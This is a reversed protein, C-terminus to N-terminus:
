HQRKSSTCLLICGAAQLLLICDAPHYPQLRCSPSPPNCNYDLVSSNQFLDASIHLYVYIYMYMLVDTICICVCM